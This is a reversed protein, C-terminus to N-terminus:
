SFSGSAVGTKNMTYCALRAHSNLEISRNVEAYVPYTINLYSRPTSSRFTAECM